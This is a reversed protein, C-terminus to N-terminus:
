GGSRATNGALHPTVGLRRMEAVFGKTDYNTDRNFLHVGKCPM